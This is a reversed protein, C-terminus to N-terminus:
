TRRSEFNADRAIMDDYGIRIYHLGVTLYGEELSRGKALVHFYTPVTITEGAAATFDTMNAMASTAMVRLEDSMAEVQCLVPQRSTARSLALSGFLGLFLISKLAM